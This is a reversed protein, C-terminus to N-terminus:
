WTVVLKGMSDNAELRRHTEAIREVAYITDLNVVLEGSNFDAHFAQMFQAVLDRKYAKCRNRLTSGRLTARKSLLKAMDLADAYRGALMALYIITGDTNLVSLNRNLYDGGVFDLVVDAAFHNRTLEDAFDNQRYNILHSAGMAECLSLKEASSATVAIECGRKKALQIAALGVGSAGAHILVRQGQRLQGLGFLSQYATLFVEPLGAAQEFSLSTPIPMAHAADMIAFEAYGGGDVLGCVPDGINWDSVEAGVADIVGSVELGLVHSHGPPAPYKGQRQLTDARNIGFARVNVRLENKDPVPMECAQLFLSSDRLTTQDTPDFDIYRM